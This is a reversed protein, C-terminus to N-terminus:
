ECDAEKDNPEDRYKELYLEVNIIPIDRKEFFGMAANCKFCLLGRIKGTRHCHDVALRFVTGAKSKKTEPQKCIACLGNQAENMRNYEEITINFNKVLDYNKIKDKNAAKWKQKVEKTREPYKARREAQEVRLRELHKSRWRKAKDRNYARREDPTMDKVPKAM